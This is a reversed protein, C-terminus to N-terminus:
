RVHGSKGQGRSASKKETNPSLPADLWEVTVFYVQHRPWLWAAEGSDAPEGNGVSSPDDM